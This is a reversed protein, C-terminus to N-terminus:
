GSAQMFKNMNVSPPMGGYFLDSKEVGDLLVQEGPPGHIVLSESGVELLATFVLM